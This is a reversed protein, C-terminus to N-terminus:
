KRKGSNSKRAAATAPQAAAWPSVYPVARPSRLPGRRILIMMAVGLALLLLSVFQSITLGATDHPNDIRITEEVIRTLPYLMLLLAFVMGHRKRRYFYANLLIALLIGDLSSYLQAPHLLRSHHEPMAIMQQLRAPDTRMSRAVTLVEPVGAASLRPEEVAKDIWERPLPYADGNFRVYLLEAPVTIQRDEWERVFASSGYPFRVGLPFEAPCPGGWCCGNLFCGIRAMAMGFMISPAAIDAYLRFSIRRALLYVTGALFAGIFGGYFELGGATINVAAWLGRGAFHDDWYHLVYFLRAGVVSALLCVFALNIIADPDAKVRAARRAAWWTGGLFGIMLMLGYGRIPITWWILPLDFLTPRM